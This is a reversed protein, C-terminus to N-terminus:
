FDDLYQRRQEARTEETRQDYHKDLVEENVNARDSVVQKPVDQSLAHTIHGRRVDHPPVSSPCSYNEAYDVAPCAQMTTDHAEADLYRHQESYSENSSDYPCENTWTCPQTCRHVHNRLTAKSPRTGETLVFFPARGYDDTTQLRTHDLYDNIVVCTNSKLTVIREGDDGMKLTTGGQPRHKLHLRAQKRDYDDVDLSQAAGIRMGTRWLLLMLVHDLSAYEYQRLYELVDEAHDTSLYSDRQDQGEDMSPIILKDYLGNDVIEISECFKLFVRLTSLQTHLSVTNLDGDDRRWLRFEHLDKGDLFEMEHINREDCWRVFHQLRYRHADLTSGSVEDARTDLYMQLATQPTTGSADTRGTPTDDGEDAPDTM